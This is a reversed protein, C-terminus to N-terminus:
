LIWKKKHSYKQTKDLSSKFTQFDLNPLDWMQFLQKLKTEDKGFIDEYFSIPVNLRDSLRKIDYKSKLLVKRADKNIEITDDSIYPHHWNYGEKDIENLAYSVSKVQDDINYRDMIIFKDFQKSLQTHFFYASKQYDRPRHNIISKCVLNDQFQRPWEHPNRTSKYMANDPWKVHFIPNYPEFSEDYELCRCLVKILSSSGTRGTSIILVKM